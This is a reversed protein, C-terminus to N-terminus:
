GSGPAGFALPPPEIFRVSEVVGRINDPLADLPLDSEGDVTTVTQTLEQDNVLLEKGFTKEFQSKPGAIGFTAGLPAHVEFGATTFHGKVPTISAMDNAPVSLSVVASVWPEQMM